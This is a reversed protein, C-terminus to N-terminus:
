LDQPSSLGEALLDLFPQLADLDNADLSRSSWLDFAVLAIPTSQRDHLIPIRISSFGDNGPPSGPPLPLLCHRSGTTDHDPFGQSFVRRADEAFLSDDDIDSDAGALVAFDGYTASIQFAPPKGRDQKSEQLTPERDLSIHYLVLSARLFRTAGQQRERITDVLARIVSAEFIRLTPLSRNEKLARRAAFLATLRAQYALAASHPPEEHTRRNRLAAGAGHAGAMATLGAAVVAAIWSLLPAWLVPRGASLLSDLREM